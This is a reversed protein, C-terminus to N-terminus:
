KDKTRGLWAPVLGPKQERLWDEFTSAFDIVAEHLEIRQIYWVAARRMGEPDSEMSEPVPVSFYEETSTKEREIFTFEPITMELQLMCLRLGRRIDQPLTLDKCMEKLEGHRRVRGSRIRTNQESRVEEIAKDVKMRVEHSVMCQLYEVLRGELEGARIGRVKGCGSSCIYLDYEGKGSTLRKRTLPAGCGFCFGIGKLLEM